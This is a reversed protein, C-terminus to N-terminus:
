HDPSLGGSSRLASAAQVVATQISASRQLLNHGCQSCFRAGQRAPSECAPCRLELLQGCQDCFKAQDDNLHQCAPCIM